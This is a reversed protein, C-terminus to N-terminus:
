KKTLWNLIPLFNWISYSIHEMAGCLYLKIGDVTKNTEERLPLRGQISQILLFLVGDFMTGYAPIREATSLRPTYLLSPFLSSPVKANRKKFPFHKQQSAMQTSVIVSLFALKRTIGLFTRTQLQQRNWSFM